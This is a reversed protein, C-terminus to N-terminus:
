RINGDASVSPRYFTEATRGNRNSFRRKAARGGHALVQDPFADLGHFHGCGSGEHRM